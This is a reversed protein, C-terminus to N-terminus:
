GAATFASFSEDEYQLALSLLETSRDDEVQLGTVLYQRFHVYSQMESDLSKIILDRADTYKDPADLAKADDLQKQFKPLYEDTISIMTANDYQKKSWKGIEDQYEATLSRSQTIISGYQRAFAEARANALTLFVMFVVIIGIAGFGAYTFVKTQMKRKPM